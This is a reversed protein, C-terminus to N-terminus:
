ISMQTVTHGRSKLEKTIQSIVQDKVINMKEQQETIGYHPLGFLDDIVYCDELSHQSMDMWLSRNRYYLSCSTGDVFHQSIDHCQEQHTCQICIINDCSNTRLINIDGLYLLDVEEIDCDDCLTTSPKWTSMQESIQKGCHECKM